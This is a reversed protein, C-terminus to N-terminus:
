LAGHKRHAPADDFYRRAYAFAQGDTPHDATEVAIVKDAITGNHERMYNMLQRKAVGPGLILIASAGAVAQAITGYYREVIHTSTILRPGEHDLGHPLKNNAIIHEAWVGGKRDFIRAEHHDVWIVCPHSTKSTYTMIFDRGPCCASGSTCVRARLTGDSDARYLHANMPDLRALAANASAARAFSMFDM